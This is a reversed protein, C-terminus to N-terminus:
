SESNIVNFELVEDEHNEFSLKVKYDGSKGITKLYIGVVGGTLSINKPGVVELGNTCEVKITEKAYPLINDYQDVLKVVVRVMDYTNIEELRLRDALVIMKTKQLSGKHVTKVLKDDRYGEFRFTVPTLAQSALYKMYLNMAEEFSMVKRMKMIAFRIKDLWPMAYGHKNYSLLLKKIRRAVKKSYRENQELLEGIFDDIVIPPNPLYSDEEKYFTDVYEDNKYVKIYDLNTYVLVEPFKLLDYDGPVMNNAVFMVEEQEPSKQSKYAYAAYKEIRHMDLVGHHCIMDGSGFQFHTNYDAMCWGIAGSINDYFHSEEIVNLHRISHEIRREDNDFSKTPFVHGNYETVLYPAIKKCVKKPNELGPNDGTHSFDNYTYVDELLESKKFNRVGGTQRYPDIKKALENTKTYFDHDDKSENIRVGWLCISPHNYHHEIMKELNRLSLAKFNEDGIYNWGPIEEFVLLGLEDCKNIFHDSQM